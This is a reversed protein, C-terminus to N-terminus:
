FCSEFIFSEPDIELPNKVIENWEKLGKETVVSNIFFDFIGFIMENLTYTDDSQYEPISFTSFGRSLLHIRLKYDISDRFLGKKICKTSFEELFITLQEDVQKMYKEYLEPYYKEVDYHNTSRINNLSYSIYQIAIYSNRLLADQDLIKDKIQNFNFFKKEKLMLVHEVIDTKNEFLQYLTKKSMKLHVAIEDMSTRRLGYKDFIDSIKILIEIKRDDLDEIM